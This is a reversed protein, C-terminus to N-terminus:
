PRAAVVAAARSAPTRRMLRAVRQRSVPESASVPANAARAACAVDAASLALAFAFAAATACRWCCSPSSPPALEPSAAWACCSVGCAGVSAGCAVALAGLTEEPAEHARQRRRGPAREARGRRDDGVGGAVARERGRAGLDRALQGRDVARAAAEA